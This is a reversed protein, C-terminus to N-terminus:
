EWGFEAYYEGAKIKELAVKVCPIINEPLNDLKFWELNDCKSPEKIEINGKWKKATLYVDVRDNKEGGEKKRNMIHSVKLDENKLIVGAEEKAERIVCETFTEGDEVHGAVLSYNGDEYGTNYRRLLLIKNGDKLVLYAAPIIKSRGKIM